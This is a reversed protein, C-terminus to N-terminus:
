NGMSVARGLSIYVFATAWLLIVGANMIAADQITVLQCDYMQPTVTVSFGTTSSTVLQDGQITTQYYVPQGDSNISVGSMDSAM